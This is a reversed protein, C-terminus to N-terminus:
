SRLLTSCIFDIDSFNLSPHCPLVFGKNHLDDAFPMHWPAHNHIQWFPQLGLSGGSVPRTEIENEKLIKYIEDREKISSAICPFSICSVISNESPNQVIFRDKLRHRYYWFKEDRSEVTFDLKKLQRLGLFSNIETPRLNYGISYFTFLSQYEPINYLGELEKKRRDSLNRSWGHSRLMLLQEYIDERNTCVMGGEVTSLQHGYYFSFTGVDGFTGVYKDRYKSGVAPCADEMLLFNYKKQLELVQDMNNPVGLTHVLVVLAPAGRRLSRELDEMDIGFTESDVECLHPTLGLQLTPSITTIWGAASLITKFDELQYINLLASYALLNASSGSNCFVSYKVGIKKSWEEEFKKTLNGMAMTLSPYTKLWDSLSDYDEKSITDQALYYKM